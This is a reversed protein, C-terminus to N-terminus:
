YTYQIGLYYQTGAGLSNELRAAVSDMRDIKYEDTLNLAEFSLKLHDTVKFSASFDLAEYDETWNVDNGRRSNAARQYEDRYSYSIRAMFRSDDYYLTANYSQESQGNLPGYNPAAKSGYNVRSDVNTYNALFGMNGFFGDTFMDFPQQWQVEFGDLDGGEGNEITRVDFLDDPTAPVQDLVDDSLGIEDWPVGTITVSNTFSDIQKWFFAVSVLAGRGYYWEFSLDYADARFPDLFPNGYSVVPPSAFGNITGGPTLSGLSPRSMVKSYSARVLFDNFPELVMNVAPLTDDYDNKVKVDLYRPNASSGLDTVGKSTVDTTVYRVGADGRFPMGAIETNWGVQVYFGLDEEIVARDDQVRPVLPWCADDTFLGIREALGNVNAAFFNDGGNTYVKGDSSTITVPVGCASGNLGSRDRRSEKVSFDYQKWSVGAKLTTSETMDFGGDLRFTDFSNEQVSPRERVESLIWNAPDATDFGYSIVPKEDSGRFDWSYGDSDFNELIITTQQKVDLKSDSTGFLASMRFRDGFEQDINLSYQTFETSWRDFRNESRVDVDDFLGYVMSNNSDIEWDLVDTAGRGSSNARAFSIAELFPESRTADLNSYMVDLGITTSDTPRWQLSGTLGLREQNHEFGVYRPFRPHVANNVEDLPCPAVLTGNVECSQWQGSGPSNSEWGGSQVGEERINRDSYALSFLVGFTSTDNVWSGLATVRPDWSESNSNYGQQYGVSFTPEGYNFPKGSQLEVTAGLSGEDIEASSTKRVALSNFLESAFVNFDFARGRNTGVADTASTTTLAEMGNIRVRTFEPSLGRITIQQGEGAVRDIAVGPIRQISEALNLDPFDAIDEAYIADIAVTAERKTELSENLSARYGTVTIEELQTNIAEQAMAPVAAAALVLGVARALLQSNRCGTHHTTM